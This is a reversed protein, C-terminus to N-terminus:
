VASPDSGPGRPATGAELLGPLDRFVRDAPPETSGDLLRSASREATPHQAILETPLEFDFDATTYAHPQAPCPLTATM